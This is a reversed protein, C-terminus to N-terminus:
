CDFWFKGCSGIAKGTACDYMVPPICYTGRSEEPAVGTPPTVLKTVAGRRIEFRGEIERMDGVPIEVVADGASLRYTTDTTKSVTGELALWEDAM